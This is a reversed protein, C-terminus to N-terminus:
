RGPLLRRLLQIQGAHYVDHMAIGEIMFRPSQRSGRSARDLEGDKLKKVVACLERHECSLLALDERWAREMAAGGSLDGPRAFWNRGDYRFSHEKEGTLRRRVAYKWYAAHVAIEWINHRGAGLRAAAARIRFEM